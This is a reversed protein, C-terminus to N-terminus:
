EVACVHRNEAAVLDANNSAVSAALRRQQRQQAAVQARVGAIVRHRALQVEYRHRLLQRAGLRRHQFVHAAAIRTEHFDLRRQFLRAGGVIAHLLSV